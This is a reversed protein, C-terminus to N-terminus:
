PIYGKYPSPLAFASTVFPALRSTLEMNSSNKVNSIMPYEGVVSTSSKYPEGSLPVSTSMAYSKFESPSAVSTGKLTSSDTSHTQLSSGFLPFQMHGVNRSPVLVTTSVSSTNFKQPSIMKIMKTSLHLNVSAPTSTIEM